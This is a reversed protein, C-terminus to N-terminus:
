VFLTTTRSKFATALNRILSSGTSFAMLMSSSRIDILVKNSSTFFVTCLGQPLLDVGGGELAERGFGEIVILVEGARGLVRQSVHQGDAVM